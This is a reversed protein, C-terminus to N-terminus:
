ISSANQTVGAVGQDRWSRESLRCKKWSPRRKAAEAALREVRVRERESLRGFMRFELDYTRTVSQM